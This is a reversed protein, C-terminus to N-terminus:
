IDYGEFVQTLKNQLEKIIKDQKDIRILAKNLTQELYLQKDVIDGQLLTFSGRDYYWEECMFSDYSDHLTVSVGIKLKFRDPLGQLSFTTSPYRRNIDKYTEQGNVAIVVTARDYDGIFDISLSDREYFSDRTLAIGRKTKLLEYRITAMKTEKLDGYTHTINERKSVARM